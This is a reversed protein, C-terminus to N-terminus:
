VYPGATLLGKVQQPELWPRKRHIMRHCSACILILDKLRPRVGADLASLPVIHHCEIYGDGREGYTKRYNFDCIECFIDKYRERFDKKKDEVIKGNRERVWHRRSLIRGEPAYAMGDPKEIRPWEGKEKKLILKALASVDAAKDGYAAWVERALQAVNSMGKGSHTPDLSALGMVQMYVGNPNRFKEQEGQSINKFVEFRVSRLDDSLQKIEASIKSPVKDRHRHYFELAVLWEDQTWPALAM